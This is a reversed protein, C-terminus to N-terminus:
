HRFYRFGWVFAASIGDALRLKQLSLVTKNSDYQTDDFLFQINKFGEPDEQQALEFGHQTAVGYEAVPGSLPLLVGIKFREQALSEGPSTIALLALFTLSLLIHALLPRM